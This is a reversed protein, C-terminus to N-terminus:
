TNAVPVPNCNATMTIACEHRCVKKRMRFKEFCANCATAGIITAKGRKTKLIFVAGIPLRRTDIIVHARKHAGIFDFCRYKKYMAFKIIVGASVGYLALPHEIRDFTMAARYLKYQQRVFTVAISRSFINKM